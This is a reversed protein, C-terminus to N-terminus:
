FYSQMCLFLIFSQIVIFNYITQVKYLNIKPYKDVLYNNRFFGSNDLFSIFIMSQPHFCTQICPGSLFARFLTDLVCGFVSSREADLLVMRCKQLALRCKLLAQNGGKPSQGLPRRTVILCVMKSRKAFPHSQIRMKDDKSIKKSSEWRQLYLSFRM